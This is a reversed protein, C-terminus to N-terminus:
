LSAPLISSSSQNSCSPAEYTSRYMESMSSNFCMKEFLRFASDPVVLSFSAVGAVLHVMVYLVVCVTVGEAPLAGGDLGTM